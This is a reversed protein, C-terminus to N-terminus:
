WSPAQTSVMPYWSLLGWPCAITVFGLSWLGMGLECSRWCVCSRHSCYNFRWLYLAVLLQLLFAENCKRWCKRWQVSWSWMNIFLAENRGSWNFGFVFLWLLIWSTTKICTRLENTELLSIAEYISAYSVIDFGCSGSFWVIDFWSLFVLFM